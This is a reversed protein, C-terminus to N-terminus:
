PKTPAGERTAEKGWVVSIRRRIGCFGFRLNPLIRAFTGTAGGLKAEPFGSFIHPPNRRKESACPISQHTPLRDSEVKSCSSHVLSQGAHSFHGTVHNHSDKPSWPISEPSHSSHSERAKYSARGDKTLSIWRPLRPLARLAM